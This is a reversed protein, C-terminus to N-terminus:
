HASPPNPAPKQPMAGEYTSTLGLFVFWGTLLFLDQGPPLLDPMQAQAQRVDGERGGGALVQNSSM